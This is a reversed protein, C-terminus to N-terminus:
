ATWATNSDPCSPGTKSCPRFSRLAWPKSGSSTPPSATATEPRGACLAQLQQRTSPEGTRISQEIEAQTPARREAERSPAVEELGYELEIERM